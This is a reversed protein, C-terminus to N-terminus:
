KQIINTSYQANFYCLSLETICYQLFLDIYNAFFAKLLKFLCQQLKFVTIVKYLIHILEM